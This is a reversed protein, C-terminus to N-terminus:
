VIEYGGPPPHASQKMTNYMQDAEQDPHDDMEYEKKDEDYEILHKKIGKFLIDSAQEKNTNYTFFLRGCYTCPHSYYM